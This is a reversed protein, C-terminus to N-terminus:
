KKEIKRKVFAKRHALIIGYYSNSNNIFPPRGHLTGCSVTFLPRIHKGQKLRSVAVRRGFPNILLELGGMGVEAQSRDVPVQNEELVVPKNLADAHDLPLLPKICNGLGVAMKNAFAASRDHIQGLNSQACIQVLGDAPLIPKCNGSMLEGEM